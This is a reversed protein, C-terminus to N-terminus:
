TLQSLVLKQFVSLMCKCLRIGFFLVEVNGDEPTEPIAMLLVIVGENRSSTIEASIGGM